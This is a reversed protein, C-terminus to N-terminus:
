AHLCQAQKKIHVDVEDQKIHLHGFHVAKFDGAQHTATLSGAQRRDDKQGGVFLRAVSHMFAIGAARHVVQEFREIGIDELGFNLGQQF